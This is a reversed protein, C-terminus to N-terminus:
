KLDFFQAFAWNDGNVKGDEKMLKTLKMFRETDRRKKEIAKKEIVNRKVAVPDQKKPMYGGQKKNDKIIRVTESNIKLNMSEKFHACLGDNHVISMKKTIAENCPIKNKYCFDKGKLKQIGIKLNKNSSHSHKEKTLPDEILNNAKSSRTKRKVHNKHDFAGEYAELVDESFWESNEKSWSFFQVFYQNLGKNRRLKITGYYKEPGISIMVKSKYNFRYCYQDNDDENRRLFEFEYLFKKYFTRITYSVNTKSMMSYFLYKWKQDETVQEMGGHQCVIVYLMYVSMSSTGNVILKSINGMSVDCYDKDIEYFKSYEKYFENETIKSDFPNILSRAVKMYEEPKYDLQMLVKKTYSDNRYSSNNMLVKFLRSNPDFVFLEKRDVKKERGKECEVVVKEEEGDRIYKVIYFNLDDQTRLWYYMQMIFYRPKLKFRTIM